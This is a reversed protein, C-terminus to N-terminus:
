AKLLIEAEDVKVIDDDERLRCFFVEFVDVHNYRAQAFGSDCEIELLARPEAVSDFEESVNDSWSLRMIV